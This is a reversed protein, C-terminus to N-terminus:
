KEIQTYDKIWYLQQEVLAALDQDNLDDKKLVIKRVHEAIQYLDGVTNRSLNSHIVVHREM